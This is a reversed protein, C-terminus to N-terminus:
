FRMYFPLNQGNLYGDRGRFKKQPPELWADRAEYEAALKEFQVAASELIKNRREEEERLKRILSETSEEQQLVIVEGKCTAALAAMAAMGAIGSSPRGGIIAISNM